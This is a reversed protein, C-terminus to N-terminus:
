KRAPDVALAGPAGDVAQADVLFIKGGTPDVRYIHIKQEPALSVYVYTAAHVPMAAALLSLAAIMRM